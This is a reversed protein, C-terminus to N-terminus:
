PVEARAPDVAVKKRNLTFSIAAGQDPSGEARVEGAHKAAIRKVTALGIGTGPFDIETHLRQFPRFLKAAFRSDFGVGNDKVYFEAGRTGVEIRAVERTKTFKVANGLLNEFLLRIMGPDGDCEIGPAIVFEFRREPNQAALEAAVEHALATVDIARVDPERQTLRSLVLLDDILLGMREAARQIRGLYERAQAPLSDQYDEVIAASFGSIGRLPARLDHSVSYAFAEIEDKASMLETTRDAVRQELEANLKELEERTSVLDTINEVISLFGTHRGAPDRLAASHWRCVLVQGSRTRVSEIRTKGEDTELSERLHIEHTEADNTLLTESVRRGHLEAANFEFITEAARNMYTIRAEPDKILCGVPMHDLLLQLRRQLDQMQTIDVGVAWNTWGPISVRRAVNYLELTKTSGDKALLHWEWGRADGERSNFAASREEYYEPSVQLRDAGGEVELIEDPRYGLVRECEKNWFVLRRRDDVAMLLVPLNMLIMRLRDHETKQAELAIRAARLADTIRRNLFRQLFFILLATLWVFVLGKETDMRGSEALGDTILIWATGFVAYLITVLLPSFSAM